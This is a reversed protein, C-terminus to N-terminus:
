KSLSAVTSNDDNLVTARYTSQIKAGFSNTGKAVFDVFYIADKNEDTQNELFDYEAQYSDATKKAAPITMAKLEEVKEKTIIRKRTKVDATDRIKMSVFEFSDPDKM